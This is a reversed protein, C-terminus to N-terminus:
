TLKEKLIYNLSYRPSFVGTKGQPAEKEQTKKRKTSTGYNLVTNKCSM